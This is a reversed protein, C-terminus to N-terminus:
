DSDDVAVVDEDLIFPSPGPGTSMRASRPYPIHRTSSNPRLGPIIPPLYALLEPSASVADAGVLAPVDDLYMKRVSRAVLRYSKVVDTPRYRFLIADLLVWDGVAFPADMLTSSHKPLQVDLYQRAPSMRFNSPYSAHVDKHLCQDAYHEEAVISFIGSVLSQFLHKVAMHGPGIRLAVSTNTGDYPIMIERFLLGVFDKGSATTYVGSNGLPSFIDVGSRRTGMSPKDRFYKSLDRLSILTPDTKGGKGDMGGWNWHGFGELGKTFRYRAPCDVSCASSWASTCRSIHVGPFPARSPIGSYKWGEIATLDATMNMNATIVEYAAIANLQGTHRGALFLEFIDDHRSTTITIRKTVPVQPHEFVMFREGVIEYRGSACTNGTLTFGMMKMMRYAWYEEELYSTIVNLNDAGKPNENLSVVALAISAIIWSELTDLTKFFMKHNRKNHFFPATYRIVRAKLFAVADAAHERSLVSLNNLGKVDLKGLILQYLEATAMVRAHAHAENEVVPAALTALTRTSPVAPM